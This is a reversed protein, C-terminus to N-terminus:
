PNVENKDSAKKIKLKSKKLIKEKTKLEEKEKSDNEALSVFCLTICMIFIDMSPSQDTIGSLAIILINMLNLFKFENFNSVLVIYKRIYFYTMLITGVIGLSTLYQLVTNHALIISDTTSLGPVPDDSVFGVGFVPSDLFKDVCWPWLVDRGNGSMGLSLHWNFLKSVQSPFIIYISVLGILIILGIFIYIKKNKSKIFTYILSIVLFIACILIGMRSYTFYTCFVFFMALLSYLYDHKHKLGLQFSAMMAFMFYIAVVNINQLGIFTVSKWLISTWFSEKVLIYSILLQVFLLLGIVIFMYNLYSKLNECFNIALWYIFYTILSLVLIILFNIINFYGFIGGLLNAVLAVLMAWFMKGKKMPKKRVFQKIIFYIAGILFIIISVLYIWYNEKDIQNIFFPVSLIIPLINKVDDCFIFVLLIFLSLLPVTLTDFKWFWGLFGITIVIPLWMYNTLIKEIKQM